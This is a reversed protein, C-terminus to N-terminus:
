DGRTSCTATPEPQQTGLPVPTDETPSVLRCAIGAMMMVMVTMTVIQRTMIKM